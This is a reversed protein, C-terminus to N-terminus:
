GYEEQSSRLKWKPLTPAITVVRLGIEYVFDEPVSSAASLLEKDSRYRAVM